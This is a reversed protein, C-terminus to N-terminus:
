SPFSLQLQKQPDTIRGGGAERGGGRSQWRPCTTTVFYNDSHVLLLSLIHLWQHGATILHDNLPVRCHHGPIRTAISLSTSCRSSVTISSRSAIMQSMHGMTYWRCGWQSRDFTEFKRLHSIISCLDALKLVPFNISKHKSKWRSITMKHDTTMVWTHLWCPIIPRGFAEKTLLCYQIVWQHCKAQPTILIRSINKM